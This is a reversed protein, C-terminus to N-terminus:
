KKKFLKLFGSKNDQQEAPEQPKESKGSKPVVDKSKDRHITETNYGTGVKSINYLTNNIMVWDVSFRFGNETQIDMLKGGKFFLFVDKLEGYYSEPGATENGKQDFLRPELDRYFIRYKYQYISYGDKQRSVLDLPACGFYKVVDEYTSGLEVSLLKDIPVYKPFQETHVATSTSSCSSIAFAVIVALCISFITKKM